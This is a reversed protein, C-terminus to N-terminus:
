ASFPKREPAAKTISRRVGLILGARAWPQAPSACGTPASSVGHFDIEIALDSEHGAGGAADTLRDGIGQRGIPSADAIRVDIELRHSLRGALNWASQWQAEIHGVFFFDLLRDLRQKFRKAPEIDQDIVSSDVRQRMADM